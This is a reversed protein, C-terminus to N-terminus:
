KTRGDVRDRIDRDSLIDSLYLRYLYVYMQSFEKRRNNYLNDYHLNEFKIIRTNACPNHITAVEVSTCHRALSHRTTFFALLIFSHSLSLSATHFPLFHFLMLSSSLHFPSSISCVPPVTFSFSLVFSLLVSLASPLSPSPFPIEGRRRDAGEKMRRARAEATKM